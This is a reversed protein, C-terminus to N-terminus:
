TVRGKTYFIVEWFFGLSFVVDGILFFCLFKLGGLLVVNFIKRIWVVIVM